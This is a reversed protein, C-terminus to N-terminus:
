KQIILPLVESMYRERHCILNNPYLLVMITIKNFFITKNTKTIQAEMNMMKKVTKNQFGQAKKGKMLPYISNLNGQMRMLNVKKRHSVREMDKKEIGAIETQISIEAIEEGEQDQDSKIIM